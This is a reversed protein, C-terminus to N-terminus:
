DTSGTFSKNLKVTCMKALEPAKGTLLKEM